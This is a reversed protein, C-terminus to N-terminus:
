IQGMAVAMMTARVVLREQVEVAIELYKKQKAYKKLQIRSQVPHAYGFYILKRNVVVILATIYLEIFKVFAATGEQQSITTLQKVGMLHSLNHEVELEDDGDEGLDRDSTSLSRKGLGKRQYILRLLM